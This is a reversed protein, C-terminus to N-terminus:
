SAAAGKKLLSRAFATSAARSEEQQTARNAAREAAREVARREDDQRILYGGVFTLTLLLLLVVFCGKVWAPTARELTAVAEQQADVNHQTTSESGLQRAEEIMREHPTPPVPKPPPLPQGDPGLIRSM